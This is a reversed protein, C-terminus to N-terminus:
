VRCRAGDDHCGCLEEEEGAGLGKEDGMTDGFGDDVRQSDSNALGEKSRREERGTGNKEEQWNDAVRCLLLLLRSPPPHASNCLNNFDGAATKLFSAVVNTTPSFRRHPVDQIRLFKECHLLDRPTLTGRVVVFSTM